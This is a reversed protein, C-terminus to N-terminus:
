FKSCCKNLIKRTELSEQEYWINNEKLYSLVKKEEETLYEDDLLNQIKEFYGNKNKLNKVDLSVFYEINENVYQISMNFSKFDLGYRRLSALISFGGCDLDGWHYLVNNFAIKKLFLIQKKNAFGGLYVIIDFDNDKYDMFTTLNEITLVKSGCILSYDANPALGWINGDNLDIITNKGIRILATGKIQILTPNKSIGNQELFDGDKLATSNMIYKMKSIYKKIVKSDKWAEVSFDRELVCLNNDVIKELLAVGKCAEIWDEDFFGLNNCLFQISSKNRKREVINTYFDKLYHSSSTKLYQLLKDIQPILSTNKFYEEAVIPNLKIAIIDNRKYQLTIIGKAEMKKLLKDFYSVDEFYWKPNGKEIKIIFNNEGYGFSSLYRGKVVNSFENLVTKEESSLNNM